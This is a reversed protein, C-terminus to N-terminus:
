EVSVAKPKLAVDLKEYLGLLSFDTMRDDLWRSFRNKADFDPSKGLTAVLTVEDNEDDPIREWGLHATVDVISTLSKKMSGQLKPHIFTVGSEANTEEAEHLVFIPTTHSAFHLSRVIDDTWKGIEGWAARTDIKGSSNFTNTEFHQVALKQVENLPDIITFDFGYDTTAIDKLIGDLDAFPIDLPLTRVVLRGEHRAQTLADDNILSTSGKEADLFLVRTDPSRKVMSAAMSSKWTGTRGYLVASSPYGFKEGPDSLAVMWPPTPFATTTTETSM